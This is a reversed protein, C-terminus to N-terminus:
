FNFLIKGDSFSNNASSEFEAFMDPSQQRARSEEIKAIVEADSTTAIFSPIHCENSAIAANTHESNIINVSEVFEDDERFKSSETTEDVNDSLDDVTKTDSNSELVNVTHCSILSGNDIVDRQKAEVSIFSSREIVQEILTQTSIETDDFNYEPLPDRQPSIDRGPIDGWYKLMSGCPLTSIPVLSNVYFAEINTETITSSVNYTPSKPVFFPLLYSSTVHYDQMTEGDLNEFCESIQLINKVKKKFKEKQM